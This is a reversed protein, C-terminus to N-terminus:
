GGLRDEDLVGLTASDLTFYDTIFGPSLQLTTRWDQSDFSHEIMEILNESANVTGVGQPTRRITVRDMLERELIAPFLVTPNKGVPVRILPIRQLPEKYRDLFLAALDAAVTDEVVLLTEANSRRFYSTISDQDEATQETGSDGTRRVDNYLRELDHTLEIDSYSLDTGDDDFTEQSTSLRTVTQRAHRDLFTATGDGAMYFFGDESKELQRLYDLVNGTPTATTVLSLGDDCAIDPWGLADLVANARVGSLQEAELDEAGSAGLRNVDLVGLTASDLTFAAADYLTALALLGFGDVLDVPVTAEKNAVTYNQPWGTIFGNFVNYTVSNYLVRIRFRRLVKLNGYYTGATYSPDFLRDRNDLVFSASGTQFEDLESSRGRRVTVGGSVRVSSTINVWVPTELPATTPSFEIAVTSGFPGNGTDTVPPSTTSGGTEGGLLWLLM